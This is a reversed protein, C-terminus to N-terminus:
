EVLVQQVELGLFDGLRVDMIIYKHFQEHITELQRYYLIGDDFEEREVVGSPYVEDQVGEISWYYDNWAGKGGTFTLTFDVHGILEGQWYTDYSSSFTSVAGDAMDLIFPEANSLTRIEETKNHFVVPAVKLKTIGSERLKPLLEISNSVGFYEYPEVWEEESVKSDKPEEEKNDKTEEEKNDKAEELAKKVAEGISRVFSGAAEPDFEPSGPDLVPTASRIEERIDTPIIDETPLATPDANLSEKIVSQELGAKKLVEKTEPLEEDKQEKSDRGLLTDILSIKVRGDDDMKITGGLVSNDNVLETLSGATFTIMGFADDAVDTSKGITKLIEKTSQGAKVGDKIITDTNKMFGSVNTAVGAVSFVAGIPAMQSETKDCAESVWNDEGNTVLLAGTSGIELLTNVGSIVTGGTSIAAGVATTAPAAAVAIVLGAATGSTKLVVATQYAKNATDAFDEYAAGALIDQAQQLQAYARKYDTGLHEALTRIGKGAPAEDFRATIDKAWAVAANDEDAAYVTTTFLPIKIHSVQTSAETLVPKEDKNKDNSDEEIWADSVTKLSESLINVQDFAAITKELLEKYEEPNGNEIDYDLFDDLYTRAILYSQVAASSNLDVLKELDTKAPLVLTAEHGTAKDSDAKKQGCGLLTTASLCVALLVYLLKKM